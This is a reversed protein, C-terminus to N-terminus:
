QGEMRIYVWATLGSDLTLPERRYRVGLKEYLDLSRLERATVWLVSGEVTSDEEPILTLGETRYGSVTAPTERDWRGYITLRIPRHQLTGYVFVPITNDEIDIADSVVPAADDPIDHLMMTIRIYGVFLLTLALACVLLFLAVATSINM